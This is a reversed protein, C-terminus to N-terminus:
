KDNYLNNTPKYKTLRISDWRTSVQHIVRGLIEHSQRLEEQYYEVEEAHRKAARHWFTLLEQLEKADTVFTWDNQEQIQADGDM